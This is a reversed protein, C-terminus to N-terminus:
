APLAVPTQRRQPWKGVDPLGSPQWQCGPRGLSGLRRSLRNTCAPGGSDTWVTKQIRRGQYDYAFTMGCAGAAIGSYQTMAILRNNADWTYSWRGDSLLNGDADYSFNTEPTQAVFVSGSDTTQGPSDYGYLRHQWTAPKLSFADYRLGGTQQAAPKWVPLGRLLLGEASKSTPPVAPKSVQAM